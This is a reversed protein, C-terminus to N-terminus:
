YKLELYFVSSDNCKHIDAHLCVRWNCCVHRHRYIANLPILSHRSLTCLLVATAAAAVSISLSIHCVCFLVISVSLMNGYTFLHVHSKSPSNWWVNVFTNSVKWAFCFSLSSFFSIFHFVLSHFFFNQATQTCLHDLCRSMLLSFFFGWLIM